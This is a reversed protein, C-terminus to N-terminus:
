SPLVGASAAALGVPRRLGRCAGYFMADEWVGASISVRFNAHVAWCLYKGQGRTPARSTLPPGWEKRQFTSLM